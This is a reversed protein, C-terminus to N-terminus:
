WSTDVINGQIGRYLLIYHWVTIDSHFGYAMVKFQAQKNHWDVLIEVFVTVLVFIGLFHKFTKLRGWNYVFHEM